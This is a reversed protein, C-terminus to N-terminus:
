HVIDPLMKYRSLEPKRLLSCMITQILHLLIHGPIHYEEHPEIGAAFTEM